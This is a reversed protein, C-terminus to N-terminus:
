AALASFLNGTLEGWTRLTDVTLPWLAMHARAEAVLDALALGILVSVLTIYLAPFQERIRHELEEHTEPATRRRQRM